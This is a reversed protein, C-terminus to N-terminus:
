REEYIAKWKNVFVQILGPDTLAHFCAVFETGHYLYIKSEFEVAEFGLPLSLFDKEKIEM